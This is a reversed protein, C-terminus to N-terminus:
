LETKLLSQVIQTICPPPVANGIQKIKENTNGEFEYNNPFGQIQGAENPLLCRIFRKGNPTRIGVYLRPQFTYACIFTKCPKTLDLVESHVPSDRKRFSILEEKHKLVMFPHPTGIPNIDTTLDILCDEPIDLSTEIANELSPEIIDYLETQTHSFEPFNYPINSNNGVLILRKRLQPVGFSTMNHVKWVIPYGIEAFCGKIVDMVMNKGDDTKKTLLGSVNEGIIWKPKVIRVVRLFEYFLKNRPDDMAKKGANSFGQCPFGAFVIHIKGVYEKLEEDSIKTIDGKVNEGLWRSKPFNKLHTKVCISNFESFAVVKIGAKELGFTDGGAGSFLSIALKGEPLKIPQDEIISELYKLYEKKTPFSKGTKTCTYKPM